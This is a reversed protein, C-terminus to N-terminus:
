GLVGAVAAPDELPLSHGGPVTVLKADPLLEVMRAGAAQFKPDRDGVVVTVPLSLERLRHWLPEM